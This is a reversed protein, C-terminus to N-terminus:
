SAESTLIAIASEGAELRRLHEHATRYDATDYYRDDDAALARATRVRARIQDAAAREADAAAREARPTVQVAHYQTHWGPRAGYHGMDEASECDRASMYHPDAVSVVLWYSGDKRPGVIDGVAVGGRAHRTYSVPTADVIKAGREDALAAIRAHQAACEAEIQEPTRQAAERAAQARREQTQREAKIQAAFEQLGRITQPRDYQKVVRVEASPAWFQASGDRFYLLIKAGDRTRVIDPSAYRDKARGAVYYTKGKYEGKAAVVSNLGDHPTKSSAGDRAASVAALLAEAEARKATWWARRDADWHAGIARVRDRISYTEGVIYTRRGVTELTINNM